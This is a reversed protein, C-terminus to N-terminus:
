WQQWFLIRRFRGAKAELVEAKYWTSNYQVEIKDGVKYSAIRAFSSSNVATLFVVAIIAAFLIIQGNSKTERKM